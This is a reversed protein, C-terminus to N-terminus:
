EQGRQTQRQALTLGGPFTVPKGVQFHLNYDLRFYFDYVDNHEVVNHPAHGIWVGIAAPHLRGGHAILCDRVVHHSVLAEEDDPPGLTSGWTKASVDGIKIGGAALDVLECGVVRNHRCGPGFAIPYEGTHRVACNEIVVNRAGIATIAAGLNIEAQPASQGELPTTWNTHAFTLGRFFVHQVWEHNTVDGRLLVLHPLRPAVVVADGLTEGPRPLYTLRGSERDLYWEGPESLAEM